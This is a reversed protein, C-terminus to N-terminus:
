GTSDHNYKTVASRHKTNRKKKQWNLSESPLSKAFFSHKSSGTKSTGSSGAAPRQLIWNRPLNERLSLKM